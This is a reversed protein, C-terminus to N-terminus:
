KAPDDQSPKCAPLTQSSACLAEVKKQLKDIREANSHQKNFFEESVTFAIPVYIALLSVVIAAITLYLAWKPFSLVEDSVERVLSEMGLFTKSFFRSKDVVESVYAKLTKETKTTQEPIAHIQFIIRFFPDGISIQFDNNGFNVLATALPGRYGPDIIGLNLALIGRHTWTTRLTALGTITEPLTFIENSVVWVIGRRPLDFSDDTLVKGESIIKGVTADYTSARVSSERANGVLGYHKIERDTLIM